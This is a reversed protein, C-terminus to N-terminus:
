PAGALAPEFVKKMFELLYNLQGSALGVALLSLGLLLILSGIMRKGSSDM